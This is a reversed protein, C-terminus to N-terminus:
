GPEAFLQCVSSVSRCRFSITTPERCSAIPTRSRLPYFAARDGSIEFRPTAVPRGSADDWRPSAQLYVSQLYGSRSYHLDGSIVQDWDSRESRSPHREEVLKTVEVRVSTPLIPGEDLTISTCDLIRATSALNEFGSPHLPCLDCGEDMGRSGAAALFLLGALSGVALVSGRWIWRM